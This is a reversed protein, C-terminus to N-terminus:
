GIYLTGNADIAPTSSGTRPLETSWLVEGRPSVASWTSRDAGHVNAGVYITSDAGIAVGADISGSGVPTSWALRARDRVTVTARGSIGRSSATIVATGERLGTILQIRTGLVPHMEEVVTAIDPASSTWSFRDPELTSGYLV